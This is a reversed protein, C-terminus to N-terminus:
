PKERSTPLACKMARYIDDPLLGLVMLQNLGNCLAPEQVEGTVEVAAQDESSGRGPGAFCWCRRPNLTLACKRRCLCGAGSTGVPWSVHVFGFTLGYSKSSVM